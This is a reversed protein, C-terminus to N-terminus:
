ESRRNVRIEPHAHAQLWALIKKRADPPIPPMRADIRHHAMRRVVAPWGARKHMLPSPAAHCQACYPHLPGADVTQTTKSVVHVPGHRSDNDCAALALCLCLPTIYMEIIKM